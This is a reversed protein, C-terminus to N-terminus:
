VYLVHLKELIKPFTGGVVLSPLHLDVRRSSVISNSATATGQSNDIGRATDGTGNDIAPLEKESRYIDRAEFAQRISYRM